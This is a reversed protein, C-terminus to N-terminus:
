QFQCTSQKLMEHVNHWYNISWNIFCISPKLIRLSEGDINGGRKTETVTQTQTRSHTGSPFWVPEIHWLHRYIFFRFWIGWFSWTMKCLMDGIDGFCAANNMAKYTHTSTDTQKRKIKMKEDYSMYESIIRRSLHHGEDRGNVDEFVNIIRVPASQLQTGM